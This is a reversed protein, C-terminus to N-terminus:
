QMWRGKNERASKKVTKCLDKYQQEKQASANRTQKLARKQDALELIEASIWPKKASRSIPITTEAAKKIAAEIKKVHEELYEAPDIKTMDNALKKSYCERIKESQLHSVDIRIRHPIKNYLRKLCLRTNCLVLSHDSCIDASQLTRCNIMSSKWRQQILILDTMNKHVGDPSAWTWKRQSKQEFRTNCIYLSHMIAFELLREGSENRDGCGYRGMVSEWDTNDSGIKANWDGTIIIIIDKKHVKALADGLISYLAEIDEDSSVMIPAYTHIVTIKYPAADFRATIVRSNVPNYGILAKRARDSLLMGVGRVHIKDEGSWIFDRNSTESKRAWRVESIGVIDYRLRKMENRLLEPKGTTWLAQVNWIGLTLTNKAIKLKETAKMSTWKGTASKEIRGQDGLLPAFGTKGPSTRALM